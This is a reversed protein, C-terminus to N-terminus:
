CFWSNSSYMTTLHDVHHVVEICGVSHLLEIYDEHQQTACHHTSSSGVHLIPFAKKRGVNLLECHTEDNAPPIFRQLSLIGVALHYVDRRKTARRGTPENIGGHKGARLLMGVSNASEDECRARSSASMKHPPLQTFTIKNLILHCIQSKKKRAHQVFTCTATRKQNAETTMGRIVAFQKQAETHLHPMPSRVASVCVCVSVCASPGTRRLLSHILSSLM